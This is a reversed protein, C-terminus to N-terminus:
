KGNKLTTVSKQLILLLETSENILESVKAEPNSLGLLRLWYRTEAAEKKATYMKNRFDLRSVANNAETYNAGISSSARILQNLIIKNEITKETNRALTICSAAFEMMRDELKKARVQSINMTLYITFQYIFFTFQNRNDQLMQTTFTPYLM